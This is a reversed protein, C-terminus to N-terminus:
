PPCCAAGDDDGPRDRHDMSLEACASPHIAPVLGAIVTPHPMLVGWGGLPCRGRSPPPHSPTITPCSSAGVVAGGKEGRPLLHGFPPHPPRRPTNFCPRSRAMRAYSEHGEGRLDSWQLSKGQPVARLGEGQIEASRLFGTGRGCPALSPRHDMSLGACASPHIAPVLGAIVNPHPMLAGCGGLSCRGRSPPPQSPTITPCSM